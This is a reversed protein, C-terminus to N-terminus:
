RPLTLRELERRLEALRANVWGTTEGVQGAVERKSLGSSIPWAINVVIWAAKPSRQEWSTTSPITSEPPESVYRADFFTSRLWDTTRRELTPRAWQSFAYGNPQWRLSLEWAAEVLYTLLDDREHPQLWHLRRREIIQAAFREVDDVNHLAWPRGLLAM